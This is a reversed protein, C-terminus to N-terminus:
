NTLKCKRQIKANLKQKAFSPNDRKDNTKFDREEDKQNTKLFKKSEDM